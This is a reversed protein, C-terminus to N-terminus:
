RFLEILQDMTGASEVAGRRRADEDPDDALYKCALVHRRAADFGTEAAPEPDFTVDIMSAPNLMLGLGGSKARYNRLIFVNGGADIAVPPEHYLTLYNSHVRRLSADTEHFKLVTNDRITIVPFRMEVAPPPAPKRRGCGLPALVLTAMLWVLSRALLRALNM